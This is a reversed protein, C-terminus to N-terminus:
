GFILDIWKHLNASVYSSELAARNKLVFDRPTEAWPPLAVNDVKENLHNQGLDVKQHNVLFSGDGFFFEPILEKNDALLNLGNQWSIGIDHFIKDPPGGVSENQLRLIYSPFQRILYYFVIGPMSYHSVFMYPKDGILASSATRDPNQKNILEFYKSRSQEHKLESLVGVPKSLDRM